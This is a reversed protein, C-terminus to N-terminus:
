LLIGMIGNLFESNLLIPSFLGFFCTVHLLMSNNTFWMQGILLIQLHLNYINYIEMRGKLSCM